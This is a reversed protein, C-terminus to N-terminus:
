NVVFSLMKNSETLLLILAGALRYCFRLAVYGLMTPGAIALLVFQLMTSRLMNCAKPWGTTVHQSSLISSTRMGLRLMTARVPDIDM